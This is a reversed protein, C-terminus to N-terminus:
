GVFFNPVLMVAYDRAEAADHARPLDYPTEAKRWPCEAGRRQRAELYAGMGGPPVAAGSLL